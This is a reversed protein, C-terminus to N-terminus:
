EEMLMIFSFRITGAAAVEVPVPEGSAVAGPAFTIFNGDEVAVLQITTTGLGSSFVAGSVFQMNKPLEPLNMRLVGAGNHGTWKVSGILQVTRGKQSFFGFRSTYTCTGATTAGSLEIDWNGETFSGAEAATIAEVVAAATPIASHTPNNLNQVVIRGAKLVKVGDWEAIVNTTTTGSGTLPAGVYEFLKEITMKKNEGGRVLPIIDEDAPADIDDLDGIFASLGGYIANYVDEITAKVPNDGQNVLLLDEAVLAGADDLSDLKLGNAKNKALIYSALGELTLTKEEGGAKVTLLNADGPTAVASRDWIWNVVLSTIMSLLVQRFEGSVKAFVKDTGAISVAVDGDKMKELVFSKLGDPDLRGPSDDSQSVPIKENGQIEVVEPMDSIKIAM